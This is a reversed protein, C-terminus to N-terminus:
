RKGPHWAHRRSLQALDEARTTQHRVRFDAGHSRVDSGGHLIGLSTLYTETGVLVADDVAGDTLDIEFRGLQLLVNFCQQSVQLAQLRGRRFAHVDLAHGQAGGHTRAQLDVQSGQFGLHFRAAPEARQM